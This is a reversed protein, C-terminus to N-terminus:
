RAMAVFEINTAFYKLPTFQVLAQDLAEASRYFPYRITNKPLLQRYWIDLLEYGTDDLLERVCAKTYLRDHYDDGLFHSLRQTWSLFYPLYFCFLVGQPRLVRRLEKLSQVDSQVHELVGFSLVVDFSGDPYSVKVPDEMRDVAIGASRLIPTDQGFSSDENPAKESCYDCSTVCAGRRRLLFTVQGKGCGWDLISIRSISKKFHSESFAQVFDVLYSYTNLSAPNRLFQHSPFDRVVSQLEEDLDLAKRFSKKRIEACCTGNPLHRRGRRPTGKRWGRFATPLEDPKTSFEM